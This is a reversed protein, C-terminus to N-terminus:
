EAREIRGHAGCGTDGEPAGPHVVDCNCAAFRTGEIPTAQVEKLHAYTMPREVFGIAHHCNPCTGSKSYSGGDRLKWPWSDVAAVWDPDLKPEFNTPSDGM